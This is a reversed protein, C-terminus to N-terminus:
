KASWSAWAENNEWLVSEVLIRRDDLASALGKGLVRAFRELSPNRGQFDPLDNLFTGRYRALVGDLAAQLAILDVLYGHNDLSASRLRVEWLYAHQHRENEAGWDGGTLAHEAEFNRRLGLQFFERM